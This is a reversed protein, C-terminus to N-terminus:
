IAVAPIESLRRLLFDIFVRQKLTYDRGATVVAHLPVDETTSAELVQAVSREALPGIMMWSPLLSIGMGHVVAERVMDVGDAEFYPDFDFRVTSRDPARLRWARQPPRRTFYLLRHRGLESLNSPAGHKAIYQVSAFLRLRSTGIRRARLSSDRLHGMRIMVDINEEVLDVVADNLRMQLAVRPNEELFRGLLPALLLRGLVTSAGVRLSGALAAAPSGVTSLLDDVMHLLTRAGQLLREGETTLQLRRTSRRFLRVGLRAELAAVARSVSPQSTKLDTAARSFSGLEAVRKFTAITEIIDM